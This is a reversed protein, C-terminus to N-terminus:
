FRASTCSDARPISATLDSSGDRLTYKYSFTEADRKTTSVPRGVRVSLGDRSGNRILNGIDEIGFCRAIEGALLRAYGASDSLRRRVLRAVPEPLELLRGQPWGTDYFKPLMDEIWTALIERDEDPLPRVRGLVQRGFFAGTRTPRNGFGLDLDNVEFFKHLAYILIALYSKGTNSPGVFVTMPRLDINAEVIPGFNTVSLELNKLKPDANM